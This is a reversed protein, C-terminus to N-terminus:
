PYETSDEKQMETISTKISMVKLENNKKKQSHGTKLM